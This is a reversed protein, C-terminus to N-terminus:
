YVFTGSVAYKEGFAETTYALKGQVEFGRPLDQVAEVHVELQDDRSFKLGTLATLDLRDIKNYYPALDVGDQTWRDASISRGVAGLMLAGGQSVVKWPLTYDGGIEILDGRTVVQSTTIGNTTDKFSELTGPSFAGHFSIGSRKGKWGYELDGRLRIVGDGTGAPSGRGARWDLLSRMRSTGTPFAAGLGLVLPQSPIPQLRAGARVDGLGASTPNSLEIWQTGSWRVYKIYDFSEGDITYSELYYDEAHYSAEAWAEVGPLVGYALTLPVIFRTRVASHKWNVQKNDPIGTGVLHTIGFLDNGSAMARELEFSLGLASRIAGPPALLPRQDRDKRKDWPKQGGEDVAKDEDEEVVAARPKVAVPVPTEVAAPPAASPAASSALKAAKASYVLPARESRGSEYESVVTLELDRREAGLSLILKAESTVPVKKIEKGVKVPVSLRTFEKEGGRRLWVSYGMLDDRYIPDWALLYRGAGQAQLTLGTPADLSLEGNAAALGGALWLCALTVLMRLDPKM